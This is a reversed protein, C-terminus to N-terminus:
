YHGTEKFTKEYLKRSSYLKMEFHYGTKLSFSFLKTQTGEVRYSM